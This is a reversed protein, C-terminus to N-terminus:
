ESGQGLKAGADVVDEAAGGSAGAVDEVETVTDKGFGRDVVNSSHDLHDV